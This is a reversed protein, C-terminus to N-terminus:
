IMFTIYHLIHGCAGTLISIVRSGFHHYILGASSLKTVWPKVNSTLSAMSENFARFYLSLTSVLSPFLGRITTMAVSAIIMYVALM